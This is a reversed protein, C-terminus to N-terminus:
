RPQRVRTVALDLATFALAVAIMSTADLGLAPAYLLLPLLAEPLQDLGPVEAGPSLRLRRKIASSLADGALSAAGFGAGALFSWGALAAVIGAAFLASVLGGWTKHSGLLRQGGLTLGLDLPLSWRPGLLRGAVAPVGTM